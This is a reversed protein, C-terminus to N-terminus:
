PLNHSKLNEISRAAKLQHRSKENDQSDTDNLIKAIENAKV